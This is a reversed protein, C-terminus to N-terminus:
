VVIYDNPPASLPEEKGERNVWVLTRGAAAGGSQELYIFWRERTPFLMNDTVGEVVPVPGGTVELRDLDFPIAFLNSNDPLRYVIHGTPLYRADDGAFLEKAEGSKLSQVM